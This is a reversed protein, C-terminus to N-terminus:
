WRPPPPPENLVRGRSAIVAAYFRASDKLTRKQTEFDV